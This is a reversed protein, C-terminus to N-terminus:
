VPPVIKIRGARALKTTAVLVLLIFVLVPHTPTM